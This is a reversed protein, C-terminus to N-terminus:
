KADKIKEWEKKLMTAAADLPGGFNSLVSLFIELKEELESQNDIFMIIGQFSKIINDYTPLKRVDETIIKVQFLENAISSLSPQFAYDLNVHHQNLIQKLKKKMTDVDLVIYLYYCM